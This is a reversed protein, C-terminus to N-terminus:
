NSRAIYSGAVFEGNFIREYLVLDPITQLKEDTVITSPLYEEVWHSPNVVGIDADLFLVWKINTPNDSLFQALACHRRFM